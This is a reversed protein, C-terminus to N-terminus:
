KSIFLLSFARTKAEERERLFYLCDDMNEEVKSRSVINKREQVIPRTIEQIECREIKIYFEVTWQL